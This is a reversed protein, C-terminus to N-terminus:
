VARPSMSISQETAPVNGDRKSIARIKPPCLTFCNGCKVCLGQDIRHPKKPEGLIANPPCNKRCVSCGNCLEGDISYHILSMCALSPCRKERIHTEFESRFHKIASRVPNPASTGLACLATAELTDCIEELLEIDGERGDGTVIRNLIHLMERLGERCPLCQGCSEHALFDVYFRAADVMCSDEDMVIMGGSGMMSGANWLGDFDVPLDLMSEPLFGGSPGGTQVAKLHKNGPLGGGIDYVVKRLPMGMPIEVLGSNQIKGVLSFVKTGTSAKTGINAFWDAGNNIIHRINAWTEVNNLCSPREWLGSVSSHIYKSRPQGVRGEIAAILASSEGSVFAGAGRHVEVDFNFGSGLIDHGLLGYDRAREIARLTNQVALPYEQRVYIYGQQAGIAYAGIILGELISHPNGELLSRDMYAGPDGEDANVLVYKVDGPANRTTEWKRGTSFGGGGRGRLGSRTVCDVIEEPRMHFLARELAAYGGIAIYDDISRPDIQTNADLLLRHQGQYFPIKDLSSASAGHGDKVMLREIPQAAIVSLEVIEDADSAKVGFYCYERPSVVVIPGRECLGYCGTERLEVTDSLHHRALSDKLAKICGSAKAARCGTGGCVSICQPKADRNKRAKLRLSALAEPNALRSM